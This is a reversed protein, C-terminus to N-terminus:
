LADLKVDGTWLQIDVGYLDKVQKRKLRGLPLDHGKSDAFLPSGEKPVVMWDVLHRVGGPLFFPIQRLFLTIEGAARLLKLQEYHRAELQSDFKFGDVYAARNKYKPNPAKESFSRNWSNGAIRSRIEPTLDEPNWRTM